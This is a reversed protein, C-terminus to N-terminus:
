KKRWGASDLWDWYVEARGLLPMYLSLVYKAGTNVAVPTGRLPAKVTDSSNHRLGTNNQDVDASSSNNSAGGVDKAGNNSSRLTM